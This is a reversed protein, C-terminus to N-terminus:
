FRDWDPDDFFNQCVHDLFCRLKTPVYRATPYV